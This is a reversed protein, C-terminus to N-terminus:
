FAGRGTLVIIVTRWIIWLDFCFNQHRVYYNDLRLKTELPLEDRGLVQSFGTLGPKVQLVKRQWLTYGTVIPIIEPRPGVLSMDGRLINFLQPLEDLSWRRLIRGLRTVRSDGKVALLPGKSEAGQVMTRFKFIKFTGGNIGARDQSFFVGGHSELAIILMLLLALPILIIVSILSIIIDFIRKM